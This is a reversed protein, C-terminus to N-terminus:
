SKAKGVASSGAKIKNKNTELKSNFYLYKFLKQTNQKNNNKQTTATISRTFM